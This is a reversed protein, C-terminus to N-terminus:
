RRHRLLMLFSTGIALLSMTAAEPVAVTTFGVEAFDAHTATSDLTTAWEIKFFEANVPTDFTLTYLKSATTDSTIDFNVSDTLNTPDNGSYVTLSGTPFYGNASNSHQLTITKVAQGDPVLADFTFWGGGGVTTTQARYFTTANGDTACNLANGLYATGTGTGASSNTIVVRRGIQLEEMAVYGALYDGMATNTNQFRVYQKTQSAFQIRRGANYNSSSPITYGFLSSASAITIWDNNAPNDSASVQIIFNDPTNSVAGGYAYTRSTVSVDNFSTVQGLNYVIWADKGGTALTTESGDVSNPATSTTGWGGGSAAGTSKDFVTLPIGTTAAQLTSISLALMGVSSIVAFQTVKM